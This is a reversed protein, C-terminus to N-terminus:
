NEMLKMELSGPVSLLKTYETKWAAWLYEMIRVMPFGRTALISRKGLFFATAPNTQVTLHQKYTILQGENM